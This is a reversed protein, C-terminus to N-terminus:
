TFKILVKGSTVQVSDLPYVDGEIFNPIFKDYIKVWPLIETFGKCIQATGTLSFEHRGAQFRINQKSFKADPSVTALFHRVVFDYLKWENQQMRDKMPVKQTPTIPPHDGADTGAKPKNIGTQLLGTAYGSIVEVHTLAKVVGQFDFNQPYSTSETRPYTIYGGLYLKEAVHM